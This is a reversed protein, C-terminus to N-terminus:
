NTLSINTQGDYTIIIRDYDNWHEDYNIELHIMCKLATM